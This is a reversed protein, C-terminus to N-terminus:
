LGPDLWSGGAFLIGQNGKRADTMIARLKTLSSPTKQAIDRYVQKWYEKFTEKDGPVWSDLRFLGYTHQLNCRHYFNSCALITNSTPSIEYHTGPPIVFCDGGGVHVEEYELDTKLATDSNRQSVIINLEEITSCSVWNKHRSFVIRANGHKVEMMTCSLAGVFKHILTPDPVLFHLFSHWQAAEPPVLNYSKNGWLTNYSDELERHRM